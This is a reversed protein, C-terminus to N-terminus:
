SVSLKLTSCHILKAFLANMTDKNLLFKFFVFLPLLPTIYHKVYILHFTDSKKM